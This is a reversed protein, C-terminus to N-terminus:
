ITYTFVQQLQGKAHFFSDAMWNKPLPLVKLTSNSLIIVKKELILSCILANGM